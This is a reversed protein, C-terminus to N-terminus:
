NGTTSLAEDAASFLGAALYLSTVALVVNLIERALLPGLSAPAAVSELALWVAAVPLGTLAAAAALRWTNGRGLHWAEAIGIPRGCAAAPLILWLRLLIGALLGYVPLAFVQMVGDAVDIRAALAALHGHLLGFLTAGPIAVLYTLVFLGIARWLYAWEVDSIRYSASAAEPGAALRHWAALMPMAAAFALIHLNINVFFFVVNEAMAEDAVGPWLVPRVIRAALALNAAPIALVLAAGPHAAILAWASQASPWVPLRAHTNVNAM